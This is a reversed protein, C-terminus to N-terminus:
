TQNRSKNEEENIELRADIDWLCHTLLGIDITHTRQTVGYKNLCDHRKSTDKTEKEVTRFAVGRM